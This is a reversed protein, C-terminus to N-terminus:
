AGFNSYGRSNHLAQYPYNQVETHCAQDAMGLRHFGDRPRQVCFLLGDGDYASLREANCPWPSLLGPPTAKMRRPSLFSLGVPGPGRCPRPSTPQELEAHRPKNSNALAGHQRMHQGIM